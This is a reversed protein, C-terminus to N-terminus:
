LCLSFLVYWFLCVVIFFLTDLGDLFGGATLGNRAVESEDYFEKQMSFSDLVYWGCSYTKLLFVVASQM